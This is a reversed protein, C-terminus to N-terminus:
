CGNLFLDRLRSMFCQLPGNEWKRTDSEIETPPPRPVKRLECSGRNESVLRFTSEVALVLGDPLQRRVWRRRSRRRSTVPFPFAPPFPSHRPLCGNLLFCPYYPFEGKGTFQTTWPCPVFIMSIANQKDPVITCKDGREVDGRRKM